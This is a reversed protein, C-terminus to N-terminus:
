QGPSDERLGEDWLEVTQMVWFVAFLLILAGEIFLVAHAWDFLWKSPLMVIVSLLMLGAIVAYRNAYPQRNQASAGRRRGFGRANLIVVGVICIFLPLAATYHAGKIFGDRNGAFWAIGAGLAVLSIALSLVHIRKRDTAIVLLVLAIVVAAGGAIFFATINNVINADTEQAAMEVSWCRGRGPTPVLAVVPALMGGINLLMDERELKSKLAIMCVGIAILTGVFIAQVPTYYYASISTQWCHPDTKSWEVVVSVELMFLLSVMALRLYRFTKTAHIDLDPM